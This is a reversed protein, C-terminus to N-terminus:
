RKGCPPSFADRITSELIRRQDETWGPTYLVAVGLQGQRHRNWCSAREHNTLRTRLQESEGVDLVYWKGDSRYDCIVYLGAQDRVSSIDTYPGEFSYGLINLSATTPTTM